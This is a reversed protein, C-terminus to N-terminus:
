ILTLINNWLYPNDSIHELNWLKKHFLFLYYSFVIVPFFLLM